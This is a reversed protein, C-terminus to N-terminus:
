SLRCAFSFIPVRRRPPHRFACQHRQRAADVRAGACRRRPLRGMLWLAFVYDALTKAKFRYTAACTFLLCPGSSPPPLPTDSCVAIDYQAKAVAVGYGPVIIINKAATLLDAVADVANTHHLHLVPDIKHGSLCASFQCPAVVANVCTESHGRRQRRLSRELDWGDSCAFWLRIRLLLSVSAGDTVTAELQM